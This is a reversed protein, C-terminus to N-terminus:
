KNLAVFVNERLSKLLRGEVIKKGGCEPCSVLKGYKESHPIGTNELRLVTKRREREIDPCTVNVLARIEDELNEKEMGSIIHKAIVIRSVYLDIDSATAERYNCNSCKGTIMIENAAGFNKRLFEMDDSIGKKRFDALQATMAVLASFVQAAWFGKEPTETTRTDIRFDGFRGNKDFERRFMDCDKNNEWKDICEDIIPLYDEKNIETLLTGVAKLTMTYLDM